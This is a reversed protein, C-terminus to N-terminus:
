NRRRVGGPSSAEDLISWACVERNDVFAHISNPLTGTTLAQAPRLEGDAMRWYIRLNMKVLELCEDPEGFDQPLPFSMTAGNQLRHEIRNPHSM